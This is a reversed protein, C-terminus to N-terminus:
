RRAPRSSGPRSAGFSAVGGGAETVLLRRRAWDWPKLGHEYYGDLRGCAVGPSTSRPRARRAPHRAGRPLVRALTEAQRGRAAGRRLRLRHGVLARRRAPRPRTGGIPAGNLQAGAGRAATFTEGRLRTTCWAWGAATARGRPGREGVLGPLRLPLQDHRRAPRGGLPAREDGDRAAGEEGSCRRRRPARGRLMDAILREAERDADSVMDTRPPSASWGARRAASASSSSRAPPM